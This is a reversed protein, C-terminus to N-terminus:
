VGEEFPGAEPVGRPLACTFSDAWADNYLFHTLGARDARCYLEQHGFFYLLEERTLQMFPLGESGPTGPPSERLPICLSKDKPGKPGHCWRKYEENITPYKEGWVQNRMEACVRAINRNKDAESKEALTALVRFLRNR